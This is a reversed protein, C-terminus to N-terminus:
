VIWRQSKSYGVWLSLSLVVLSMFFVLLAKIYDLGNLYFMIFEGGTLIFASAIGIRIDKVGLIVSGLITGLLLLDEFGMHLNQFIIDWAQM